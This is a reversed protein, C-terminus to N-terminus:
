LLLVDQFAVDMSGSTCNNRSKGCDLLEQVSLPILKRNRIALHSEVNGVVAFAWCSCCNKQNQVPTVYKKKRWDMEEPINNMGKRVTIIECTSTGFPAPIGQQFEEASLDSFKTVGYRASGIEMEQRKRARELNEVFIKFRRTEEELDKYSKNYTQMFDCFMSVMKDKMPGPTHCRKGELGTVLAASILLLFMLSQLSRM